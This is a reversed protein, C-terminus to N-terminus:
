TAPTLLGRVEPHQGPSFRAPGAKCHNAFYDRNCPITSVRERASAAIQPSGTFISTSVLSTVEGRGGFRVPPKGADPEGTPSHGRFEAFNKM